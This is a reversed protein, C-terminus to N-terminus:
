AGEAESKWTEKAVVFLTIIVGAVIAIDAFNFVPWFSFDIFDVVSGQLIRDIINGVAGGVILGMGVQFIRSGPGGWRWLVVLLLFFIVITSVFLPWSKGSILGFATGPNRVHRIKLPGLAISDGLPLYVRILSKSIQDVVLAISAAIILTM